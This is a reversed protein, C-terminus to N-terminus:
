SYYTLSPLSKPYVCYKCRWRCGRQTELFAQQREYLRDEIVGDLYISPIEDLDEIFGSDDTYKIKGEEWCAVGKPLESGLGSDKAELHRMLGLLKREGEGIVYYDSLSPDPLSSIWELAIEPGGLIHVYKSREKLGEIVDLIKEINWVYCSYGICDADCKVIKDHIDTVATENSLNLIDVSLGDYFKGLYGKLVYSSLQYRAMTASPYLNVLLLKMFQSVM